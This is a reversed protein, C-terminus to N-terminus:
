KGVSWFHEIKESSKEQRQNNTHTRVLMHLYM